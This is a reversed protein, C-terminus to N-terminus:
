LKMCGYCLSYQEGRGEQPNRQARLYFLSDDESMPTNNGRWGPSGVFNGAAIKRPAGNPHEEGVRSSNRGGLIRSISKTKKSLTRIECLSLRAAFLVFQVDSSQGVSFVKPPSGSPSLFAVRRASRGHRRSQRRIMVLANGEDGADHFHALSRITKSAFRPTFSRRRMKVVRLPAIARCVLRGGCLPTPRRNRASQSSAGSRVLYRRTM